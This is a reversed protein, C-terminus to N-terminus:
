STADALENEIEAFLSMLDPSPDAGHAERHYDAYLDSLPRGATAPREDVLRQYRARVKVV